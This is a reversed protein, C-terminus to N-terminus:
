DELRAGPASARQARFGIAGAALAAGVVAGCTDAFWDAWEFDRGTWPQTAEDVLGFAVAIALGILSWSLTPWTRPTAQPSGGHRPVLVAALLGALGAYAMFHLRKDSPALRGAGSLLDQPWHTGLVLLLGYTALCWRVLRRRPNAATRNLQQPM